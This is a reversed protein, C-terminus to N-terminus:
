SNQLRELQGEQFMSNVTNRSVGIEKCLTNISVPPKQMCWNIVKKRAKSLKEMEFQAASSLSYYFIPTEDKYANPASLLARLVQGFPAMTWESVKELFKLNCLKIPSLGSISLIQKLKSHKIETEYELSYVVGWITRNRFSVKVINGIQIQTGNSELNELESKGNQFNQSSIPVSVRVKAILFLSENKKVLNDRLFAM